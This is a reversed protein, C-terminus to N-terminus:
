RQPIDQDLTESIVIWPSTPLILLAGGPIHDMWTSGPCCLQLAPFLANVFYIFKDFFEQCFVVILSLM